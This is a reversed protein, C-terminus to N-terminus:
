VRRMLVQLQEFLPFPHLVGQIILCDLDRSPLCAEMCVVPRQEVFWKMSEVNVGLKRLMQNNKVQEGVMERMKAELKGWVWKSLV